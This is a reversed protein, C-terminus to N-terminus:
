NRLANFSADFTSRGLRTRLDVSWHAVKSRDGSDGLEHTM